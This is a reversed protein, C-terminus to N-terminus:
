GDLHVLRKYSGGVAPAGGVGRVGEVAPGKEVVAGEVPGEVPQDDREPCVLM